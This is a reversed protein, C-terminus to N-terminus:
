HGVLVKTSSIGSTTQVRVIYLGGTQSLFDITYTQNLTDPLLNDAVVHGLLDYVQLRVLQRKPLDFTIKVPTDRGGYVSYLGAVSNPSTNDDTFFEINDLYLNNGHANTAVFAFRINEKGAVSDLSLYNKKWQSDKKPVWFNAQTTDALTSASLTLLVKGFTEGCDESVMVYLTEDGNPQSAYSTEFFVSAKQTKSFDIVPSVLWAQDGLKTNNYSNFILSINKNTQAPFWIQGGAPNVISWSNIFTGDFNERLPVVDASSNIVLATSLNDLTPTGNVVGNPSKITIALTNNGISFTAPALVFNGATGVDLQVGTVQQTALQNNVVVDAVFSNIVTNGLNKISIVPSTTSLCSVPSPSVISNLAFATFSYNIVSVNDIFLNNGFDNVGEFAIQIKQGLFQNMSIVDTTWQSSTPVFPSSTAATTALGTGSKNFIEISSKNFDCLTTVIVRLRDNSGGSYMAYAHDFSLSAITASTLDLVPTVLLDIAGLNEYNYYDMYMAHNSGGTLSVNQWATLGDPNTIQWGAPTANVPTSDFTETLPVAVAVPVITSVALVNNAANGDTGGNTQMVQFSFNYSAGASLSVPSFSLTTETAVALNAPLPLTETPSGNLSFQIQASTITNSGYNRLRIMPILNGSCASAGPSSILKIGLDNAVPAPVNAGVSTLLSARRPSNNIIIDMRGVQGQSFINMCADNTYNMYNSYMTHGGCEVQTTNPCLGNYDTDQIPTDNVYDTSVAPDCSNADGWVHRLGFFHGIEHTATRGLNYKTLLNFSGGGSANITGYAQYDVVVGDTLRDISSNQLGQLSLSSIPLQTYGLLSASLNVVWINLYEEAPWYSLAKLTYDDSINWSTQTGQVRVIGNTAIGNPDQKAMVFTINMMGAVLIFESPTKSADSNMREFDDNIVKIQSLVQADSINTGVGVAEGNHIVHVVVPVVYSGGQVCGNKLAQSKRVMKESMWKEFQETTEHAPNRLQRLKEYAVTGCREQAHASVFVLMFILISFVKLM